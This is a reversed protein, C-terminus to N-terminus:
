PKKSKSKPYIKTSGNYVKLGIVKQENLWLIKRELEERTLLQMYGAQLGSTATYSIEYNLIGPPLQKM